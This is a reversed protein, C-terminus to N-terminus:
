ENMRFIIRYEEDWNNGKKKKGRKTKEKPLRYVFRLVLMHRSLIFAASVKEDNALNRCSKRSEHTLYKGIVRVTHLEM